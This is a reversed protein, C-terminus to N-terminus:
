TYKWIKGVKKWSETVTLFCCSMPLQELEKLYDGYKLAKHEDEVNSGKERTNYKFINGLCFGRMELVNCKSELQEIASKGKVDYHKNALKGDEQKTLLPHLQKDSMMLDTYIM